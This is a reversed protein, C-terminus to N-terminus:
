RLRVRQKILETNKQPRHRRRRGALDRLASFDDIVFVSRGHTGLVLDTEREQIAMDMVSVTPVGARFPTWGAGGDTSFFLGFETGLFLLDAKEHDQVVRWLLHREPLNGAISKWTRGRNNSELIYPAFDGHKHDDVVVYVTDPDHLDAKIDNVFFRDPVGPLSDVTRWNQGGDETVSILVQSVGNLTRSHDIAAQLLRGAVGRGRADPRVYTGWLVVKHSEKIRSLRLVGLMGVLDTDIAGFVVSEPGRGLMERVADVTGAHDDEPSAAFALPEDRLAQRRLAFLQEAEDPRLIRIEM